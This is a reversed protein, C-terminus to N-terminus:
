TRAPRVVNVCPRGAARRSINDAITM